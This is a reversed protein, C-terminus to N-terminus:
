LFNLNNILYHLHKMLYKLYKIHRAYNIIHLMKYIIFLHNSICNTEGAVLAGRESDGGKRLM